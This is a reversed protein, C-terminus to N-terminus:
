QTLVRPLLSSFSRHLTGSFTVLSQSPTSAPPSPSSTPTPTRLIVTGESGISAIVQAPLDTEAPTVPLDSDPLTVENVSLDQTSVEPTSTDPSDPLRQRSAANKRASSPLQLSAELEQDITCLSEELADEISGCVDNEICSESTIQTINNSASIDNAVPTPDVISVVTTSASIAPGDQSDIPMSNEADHIIQTKSTSDVIVTPPSTEVILDEENEEIILRDKPVIVSTDCDDGLTTISVMSIDTAPTAVSDPALCVSDPVVSDPKVSDPAVCVSASVVDLPLEESGVPPASDSDVESVSVSVVSPSVVTQVPSSPAAPPANSNDDIDVSNLVVDDGASQSELPPCTASASSNTLLSEDAASAASSVDTM